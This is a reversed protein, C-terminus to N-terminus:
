VEVVVREAKGPAFGSVTTEVTYTGPQLNSFRFGGESNSTANLTQNTGVNTVTVAANPVVNGQPDTITGTIGGAVTSQAFAAGVSFFLTLAVLSTFRSLFIKIMNRPRM